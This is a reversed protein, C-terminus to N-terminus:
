FRVAVKAYYSREIQTNVYGETEGNFEPHEGDFLNRAGLRLDWRSSPRWAWQLDVRTYAPIQGDFLKSVHYAALNLEMRGPLDLYSLLQILHEPDSIEPDTPDPDMSGAYPDLDLKFLSYSLQLQWRQVPRFMTVVEVGHADGGMLNDAVNPIVLHPPVPDAEVFPVGPEFTRLDRYRNYFATLDIGTNENPSTRYGAELALVEEAELETNGFISLLAPMGGPGPFAVANVRFDEVSRSATQVARSAAGWIHGDGRTSWIARLTPQIEIGTYDNHEIKSGYTLQLRDNALNLEGQAFASVLLDSREAPNFRITFSGTTDDSTSRLGAGWIWRQRSGVTLRHQFDLDWTDRMESYMAEDRHSRDFYAQLTFDSGNDLKRNWSGLVFTGCQEAEDMIESFYPPVLAASRLSQDIEEHHYESQIMVSDRDGPTWDIRFGVQSSGWGDHNPSGDLRVQEDFNLIRGDVRYHANQALHGGHRMSVRTREESGSGIELLTGTTEEANRTIINIIGNVANAGWLSAGPGRIVEIREVNDLSMNQAEWFVGSFLPTFLTRGDRLVLLHSAHRRNFGRSSIAWANSNIRAVHIGPVMRLAEPITEAGTRRLDERTIVYMAAAVQSLPQTRKGASYVDINMLEELSLSSLDRDEGPVGDDPYAPV